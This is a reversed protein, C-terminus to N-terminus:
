DCVLIKNQMKKEFNSIFLGPVVEIDQILKFGNKVYLSKAPTNERGTSVKFITIENKDEELYSLLSQAVGKRFHEPHVIMRCIKLENGKIEYSLAGALEDGEFYGLFVENSELLEEFSEKLPPIEYYNIIEAEILYAARQLEFLEKILRNDQFEIKKIM